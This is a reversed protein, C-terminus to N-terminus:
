TLNSVNCEYLDAPHAKIGRHFRSHNFWERYDRLNGKLWEPFKRLHNVFERNLNQICREVKGKDQPYSPHAFHAEIGHETCWKKWQEKFQSGLDSLIAKPLRKQKALLATVEDTTLEHNFQEASVIFRSYDDICVLFWYKKGQVSFPGKFDIQWLEDAAKARFFKWRKFERWYGNQKNRALVNNITERSLRVGQVCRISNRMFDPLCYLGQQIRATGWKFTTRLKLICLEVEETVKALKPQRHEDKYYERGVHKARKLWRHVTQRTTDFLQAVRTVALGKQVLKGFAGRIDPSLRVGDGFLSSHM